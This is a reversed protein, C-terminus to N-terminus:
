KRHTASIFDHTSFLSALELLFPGRIAWSGVVFFWSGVVSVHVGSLSNASETRHM